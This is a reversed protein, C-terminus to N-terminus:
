KESLYRNISQWGNLEAEICRLGEIANKYESEALDMAIREKYVLGRAIKETITAPPDKIKEGEFEFTIGNRLKILIKALAKEYEAITNAKNEAREQLLKRGQELTKIKSEIQQAVSIIDM